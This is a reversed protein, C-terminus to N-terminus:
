DTMRRSRRRINNELRSLADRLAKDQVATIEASSALPTDPLEPSQREAEGSVGVCDVQVQLKEVAKYGYVRNVRDVIERARHTVEVAAPGDVGLVLTGGGGASRKPYSLKLPRCLAAIEAGVVDTWRTLLRQEAFGRGAGVDRVLSECAAFAKAFGASRRGGSGSGLRGHYTAM